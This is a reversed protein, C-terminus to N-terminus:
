GLVRGRFATRPLPGWARGDRSEPRNDGLLLYGSGAVWPGGEGREPHEVYPEALPRGEVFLEGQRQELREGPLGVVRKLAPGEPGEVLWVEGRRPPACAWARLVWCVRGPALAPRMSAGAVRVPHVVAFPALVLGLALTPVWPRM